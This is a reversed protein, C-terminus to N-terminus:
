LALFSFVEKSIMILSLITICKCVQMHLHMNQGNKLCIYSCIKLIKFYYICIKSTKLSFSSKLKSMQQNLNSFYVKKLKHFYKKMTKKEVLLTKKVMQCTQFLSKPLYMKNLLKVKQLFYARIKLLKSKQQLHKPTKLHM